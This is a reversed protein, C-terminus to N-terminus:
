NGLRNAYNTREEVSSVGLTLCSPLYLLIISRSKAEGGKKPMRQTVDYLSDYYLPPGTPPLPVDLLHVLLLLSAQTNHKLATHQTNNAPLLIVGMTHQLLSFLPLPLLSPVGYSM